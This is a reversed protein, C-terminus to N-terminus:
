RLHTQLVRERVLKGGKRQKLIFYTKNFLRLRRVLSLKRNEDWYRSVNTGLTTHFRRVSKRSGSPYYAVQRVSTGLPIHTARKKFTVYGMSDYHCETKGLLWYVTREKVRGAPDYEKAAKLAYFPGWRRPVQQANASISSGFLMVVGALVRCFHYRRSNM